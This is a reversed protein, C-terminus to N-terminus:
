LLEERNKTEFAKRAAGIQEIAAMHHERFVEKTKRWPTQLFGLLRSPDINNHAYEATLGFNEAFSHNSGTPIQDYGQKDFTRYTDVRIKSAKAEQDFKTGYYWNSQLVTKPMKKLFVEPHHWYYDSWIWPRSGGEGVADFLLYLDHWWLDFQRVISISYMRQHPHTEEDMGLHFFRPKDFIQIVETILDKCVGYYTDTSLMRAYEGMWADHGASFNLKPIPEIGLTRLRKIEKRLRATSWANKVAIEPHSEYSVGDGLDLVIMNVGSSVCKAVMDNWLVEDFQLEPRYYRNEREPAPRDEWMNYSLHLLNGWILKNAAAAKVPVAAGLAAASASAMFERRKIM